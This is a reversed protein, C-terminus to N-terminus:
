PEAAMDYSFIEDDSIDKNHTKSIVYDKVLKYWQQSSTGAYKEHFEHQVDSWLKEITTGETSSMEMDIFDKVYHDDEINHLEPWEEIIGSVDFGGSKIFERILHDSERMVKRM